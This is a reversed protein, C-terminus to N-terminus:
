VMALGVYITVLTYVVLQIYKIPHVLNFPRDFISAVTMGMGPIVGLGMAFLGERLGLLTLVLGLGVLAMAAVNIAVRIVSTSM